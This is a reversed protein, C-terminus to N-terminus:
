KIRGCSQSLPVVDLKSLHQASSTLTVCSLLPPPVHTQCWAVLCRRSATSPLSCDAMDPHSLMHSDTEMPLPWHPHSALWSTTTASLAQSQGRGWCVAKAERGEGPLVSSSIAARPALPQWARSPGATAQSVPSSPCTGVGAPERHGRLCTMEPGQNGEESLLFLM